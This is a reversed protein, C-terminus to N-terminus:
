RLVTLILAQSQADDQSVALGEEDGCGRIDKLDIEASDQFRRRPRRLQRKGLRKEV